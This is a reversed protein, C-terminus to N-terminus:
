RFTQTVEHRCIWLLQIYQQALAADIRVVCCAAMGTLQILLGQKGRVCQACGGKVGEALFQQLAERQFGTYRGAKVEDLCGAQQLLSGPICQDGLRCAGGCAADGPCQIGQDITAITEAIGVCGQM